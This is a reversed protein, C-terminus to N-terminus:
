IHILSLSYSACVTPYMTFYTCPVPFHRSYLLGSSLQNTCFPQPAPPPAQNRPGCDVRDMGFACDSYERGPGGDDGNGDAGYKCTNTCTQGAAQLALSLVLGVVLKLM